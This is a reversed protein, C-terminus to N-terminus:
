IGAWLTKLVIVVPSGSNVASVNVKTEYSFGLAPLSEVYTLDENRIDVPTQENGTSTQADARPLQALASVAVAALLVLRLIYSSKKM